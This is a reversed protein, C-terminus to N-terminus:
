SYVKMWVMLKLSYVGTSALTKGSLCQLLTLHPLFPPLLCSCLSGFALGWIKKFSKIFETASTSSFYRKTMIRSPKKWQKWHEPEHSAILQKRNEESKKQILKNQFAAPQFLSAIVNDAHIPSGIWFLNLLSSVHMASSTFTKLLESM